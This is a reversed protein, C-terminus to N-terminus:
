RRGGNAFFLRVALALALGPLAPGFVAEFQGIDDIAVPTNVPGREALGVFAAVDLRVRTRVTQVPREEYVGPPLGPRWLSGLLAVSM